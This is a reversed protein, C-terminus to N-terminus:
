FIIDIFLYFILFGGRLGMWAVACQNLRIEVLSMGAVVPRRVSRRARSVLAGGEARKPM